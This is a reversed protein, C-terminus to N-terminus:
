PQSLQFTKYISVDVKIGEVIVAIPPSSSILLSFFDIKIPVNVDHFSEM